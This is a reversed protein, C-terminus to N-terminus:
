RGREPRARLVGSGSSFGWSFGQCAASSLPRAARVLQCTRPPGESGCHRPCPTATGAANSGTGLRTYDRCTPRMRTTRNVNTRADDIVIADQYRHAYSPTLRAAQQQGVFCSGYFL